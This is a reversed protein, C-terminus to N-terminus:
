NVQHTFSSIDRRIRNNQGYDTNIGARLIMQVPTKLGLEKMVNSTYPEEELIQSMPHISIGLAVADLWFREMHMGAQVSGTFDKAGTIVFFGAANAVQQETKSVAELAFSEKGAGERSYFTYYIAKLPGKLGLQEAPLGDRSQRAEGDSFRFWDALEVRKRANHAQVNMAEVTNRAIWAYELTGKAYFHLYPRNNDFLEEIAAESIPRDEYNRKDTHRLIIQALQQQADAPRSNAPALTIQAVHLNADPEPLITISPVYGYAQAAQKWNELFAGLSIFSERNHPDVQALSRNADFALIFGGTQKDYPIRWPQTNHGSPAMSAYYLTERIDEPVEFSLSMDRSLVLPRGIFYGYIATTILCFLVVVMGIKGKTM